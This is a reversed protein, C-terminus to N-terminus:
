IFNVILFLWFCIAELWNLGTYTHVSGILYQLAKVPLWSDATAIAIESMASVQSAVAEMTADSVVGSVDSLLEVKDSGGGIATSM